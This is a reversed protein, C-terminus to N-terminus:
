MGVALDSPIKPKLILRKKGDWDINLFKSSGHPLIKKTGTVNFLTVEVIPSSSNDPVVVERENSWTLTNSDIKEETSKKIEKYEKWGILVHKYGPKTDLGLPGRAYRRACVEIAFGHKSKTKVSWSGNTGWEGQWHGPITHKKNMLPLRITKEEIWRPAVRISDVDIFHDTGPNQPFSKCDTSLAGSSYHFERVLEKPKYQKEVSNNFVRVEYSGLKKPLLLFAIPLKIRKTEGFEFFKKPKDYSLVGSVTKISDNHHKLVGKPLEFVVQQRKLDLIPLPNSVGNFEIKPNNKDLNVGRITVLINQTIEPHIVSPFHRFVGTNQNWFIADNVTQNLLETVRTLSEIQGPVDAHKVTTDLRRFFASQTENLDDLADDLLESNAEKWSDIVLKAEIGAKWALYDGTNEAKQIVSRLVSETGAIAVGATLPEAHANSNISLLVLVYLAMMRVKIHRKKM